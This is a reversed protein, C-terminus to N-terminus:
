EAHPIWSVEWTSVKDSDPVRAALNPVCLLRENHYLLPYDARQWFPIGAEALVKTVSKSIGRRAISLTDSGRSFLVELEADACMLYNTSSKKQDPPSELSIKHAVLEGHPLQLCGPLRLLYKKDLPEYSRVSIIKSKHRYLTANQLQLSPQKDEPASLQRVFERLRANPVSFEGRQELWLRVITEQEGAAFQQLWALDIAQTSIHEGVLRLILSEQHQLQQWLNHLRKNINGWRDRLRPMLEHRIFNRDIDLDLNSPDDLSSLQQSQAYEVLTTKPVGLLPRLLAGQRILRRQPMGSLERGQLIKLLITEAQDELHHGLLLLGGSELMEGFFAYRQKRAWQEINGSPPNDAQQCVLQIGLYETQVVCHQQWLNSDAHLHHNFHLAIVTHLSKKAAKVVASLLVTSDLGGSYGVYVPDVIPHGSLAQSVSNAISKKESM